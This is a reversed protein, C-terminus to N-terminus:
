RNIGPVSKKVGLTYHTGRLLPNTYVRSNGSRQQLKKDDGFAHTNGPPDNMTKLHLLQPEGSGTSSARSGLVAKRNRHPLHWFKIFISGGANASVLACTEAAAGPAGVVALGAAVGTGGEEARVTGGAAPAPKFGLPCPGIAGEGAGAIAEAGDAGVVAGRGTAVTGLGVWPASILSNFRSAEATGMVSGAPISVAALGPLPAAVLTGMSVPLAAAGEFPPADATAATVSTSAETDV